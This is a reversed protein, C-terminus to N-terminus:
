DAIGGTPLRAAEPRRGHATNEADVTVAVRCDGADQALRLCCPGATASMLEARAKGIEYKTKPRRRCGQDSEGGLLRFTLDGSGAERVPVPGRNTENKTEYM